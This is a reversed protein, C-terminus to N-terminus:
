PDAANSRRPKKSPSEPEIGFTLGRQYEEEAERKKGQAQLVQSLLLHHEARDDEEIAREFYARAQEHQSLKFHVRGLSSWIRNEDPDIRQENLYNTIALQFKGLKECAVAINYYADDTKPNIALARETARIADEFKRQALLEEGLEFHAEASNALAAWETYHALKAQRLLERFDDVQEDGLQVRREAIGSGKWLCIGYLAHQVPDFKLKPELASAVDELNMQDSLRASFNGESRRDLRAMEFELAPHDRTNIPADPNEILAQGRTSLLGHAILEPPVGNTRFYAALVGNSSVLGPHRLRIPEPSCLLLFYGPRIGALACHPFTQAVTKLVIDLGRRGIRSDVWTVYVGDPALRRRVTELFDATYLKSSSFYRPSTVTNIILPYRERCVNMFHIGDDLIFNVNRKSAIDFNHAAMRWQNRLVAPNIEVCDLRDVLCAATGATAGSGVGLVLARDTRPAFLPPFAGVIKESPSNLWISVYGNIFFQVDNGVHNLSFVDQAGKFRESYDFDSRAEALVQPSEFSDFSLYLFDEDWRVQHLGIVTAALGAAAAAARGRFRTQVLASLGALGAIVLILVGYDL